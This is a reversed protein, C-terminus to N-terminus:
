KAEYLAIGAAIGLNLSDINKSHPIYVKNLGKSRLIHEDIGAGENGFILSFPKVFNTDKIATADKDLVFAYLSRNVKNFYEGFSSYYSLRTHFFAGTSSRIVKPDFADVCPKILVIDEYGFGVMTRIITGVNGMDSPNLLVVHNKKMDIPDEYKTFVGVAYCNESNSLKIVLKDAVEVKIRRNEAIRIIEELGKNEEGKSSIFIRQVQNPRNRLLELTAFVGSAYSYESKKNYAKLAVDMPCIRGGISTEPKRPRSHCPLM